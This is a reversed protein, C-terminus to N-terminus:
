MVFASHTRLRPTKKPTPTFHVSESTTCQPPPQQWEVSPQRMACLAASQSWASNSTYRPSPTPHLKSRHLPTHQEIDTSGDDDSCRQLTVLGCLQEVSSPSKKAPM